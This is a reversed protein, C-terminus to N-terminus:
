TDYDYEIGRKSISRKYKKIHRKAYISRKRAKTLEELKATEAAREDRAKLEEKWLRHREMWPLEKKRMRYDSIGSAVARNQRMNWWRQRKSLSFWSPNNKVYAQLKENFVAFQAKVLRHIVRKPVRSFQRIDEAIDDVYTNWRFYSKKQYEDAEAAMKMVEDYPLTTDLYFHGDRAERFCFSVDPYHYEFYSYGRENQGAIVGFKSGFYTKILIGRCRNFLSVNRM